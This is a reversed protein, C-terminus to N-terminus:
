DVYIFKNAGLLAQCVVALARRHAAAASLTADQERFTAIQQVVSRSMADMSLPPVDEGYALSWAHRLQSDLENGGEAIVRDAFAEAYQVMFNSNMMLLSQPAVNSSARKTCNPAVSAVDFTELVALPRSRRVQVYVSRRHEEGNLGASARPKREGDLDEKGIVIQGVADEMVPVAPGFMTNNELGSVALVADRFVESEIRRISQRAYFRNEPDITDLQDTRTSVQQYTRSTVMLRHLHKVQWGSEVFERALWDLLEPHTPRQGLQGFDGPSNVIGRGFLHFWIRNAIVRPVLPHNGSTLHRAYALRRGSSAVARDNIPIDASAHTTLVTLEGPLVAVGPANHNGRKFLFTEPLHNAPETLARIFHEQPITSRIDDVVKQLEEMEQRADTKRCIEAARRYEAVLAAGQPDYEKLTKATVTVGSRGAHARAIFEKERQDALALIDNARRSRQRSYLYLSGSSINRINPHEKLLANQEATRKKSPTEYATRLALQLDVPAKILEEYLTRQIHANIVEQRQRQAENAKTEIRARLKRDQETYLSIKRADPMRWAKWDLAPEFIARLAYYDQHSIPDYRHDHCRACGVTLGLLSTTMINITDAIMENRAVDQDVNAGTGDPAMRLFGTATLRRVEEPSLDNHPHQVLEDGALQEVVFQDFPLGENFARIVYDRYSYAWDRIPDADVYGESDAYGAVDLWHRGWREGYRPSALLRDVLRQYANPMGDAVFDTVNQPTPPVGLLDFYLRRILTYKSAVDSFGLSQEQLRTLVFHDVPSKIAQTSEVNRLPPRIPQFAWFDREEQTFYTGEDLSEPEERQTKAGREIWRRIVGIEDGSLKKDEPPMEGSTVRNFLLSEDSKGPVIAAGSDGGAILFRRLRVDLEGRKVGDEGHCQFCHAKLIPRVDREYTLPRALATGAASMLFLASLLLRRSALIIM